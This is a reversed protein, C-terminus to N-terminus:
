VLFYSKMYADLKYNIYIKNAKEFLRSITKQIIQFIVPLQERGLVYGFVTWPYTVEDLSFNPKGQPVPEGGYHKFM